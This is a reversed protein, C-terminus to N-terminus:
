FQEHEGHKILRTLTQGCCVNVCAYVSLRFECVFCLFSDFLFKCSNKLVNVFVCKANKFRGCWLLKSKLKNAFM